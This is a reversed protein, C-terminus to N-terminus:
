SPTRAKQDELAVGAQVNILSISHAMVDHLERAIELREESARRRAEAREALEVERRRRRREAFVSQQMRILESGVLLVLLWATIGILVPLQPRDHGTVRAVLLTFSLYGILLIPYACARKGHLIAHAFAVILALYIPGRPYDLLAYSLTAIFVGPLVAAPYRNRWLLLGAAVGLL